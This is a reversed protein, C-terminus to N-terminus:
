LADRLYPRLAELWAPDDGLRHIFHGARWEALPCAHFLRTDPTVRGSQLLYRLREGLPVIDGDVLFGEGLEVHIPPTQMMEFAEKDRFLPDLDTGTLRAGSPGVSAARAQTDVAWVVVHGDLMVRSASVLCGPFASRWAEGWRRDTCLAGAARRASDRSAVFPYIEAHDPMDELQQLM